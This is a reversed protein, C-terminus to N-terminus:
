NIAQAKKQCIYILNIIYLLYYLLICNNTILYINNIIYM